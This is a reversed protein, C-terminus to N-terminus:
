GAPLGERCCFSTLAEAVPQGRPGARQPRPAHGPLPVMGSLFTERQHGHSRNRWGRAFSANSMGRSRAAARSAHRCGPLASPLRPHHARLRPTGSQWPGHAFPALSAPRAAHAEPKQARWPRKDSKHSTLVKRAHSLLKINNQRGQKFPFCLAAGAFPGNLGLLHHGNVGASCGAGHM